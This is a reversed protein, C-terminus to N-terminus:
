STAQMKLGLLGKSTKTCLWWSLTLPPTIRTAAALNAFVGDAKYREHRAAVYHVQEKIEKFATAIQRRAKGKKLLGKMKSVLKQFGDMDADIETGKVRVLLSDVVDETDYSLERVDGAWLKVEEDLQDRPV